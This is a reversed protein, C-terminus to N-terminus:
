AVFWAICIFHCASGALVMVHWLDHATFRGPWLHPRDLAFVVAGLSYVVGGAVLWILAATPLARFLPGAAIVVLWGMLVYLAVRIWGAPEKMLLVSAVGAAALAWEAALLGWGWPGWLPGLCLPTVTGAILLYIAAYDCQDLRWAAGASCRVAHTTTSAAYLLILCSGYVAFAVTLAPRGGALVLLVVLGVVSLLTGVLHSLAPWPDKIMRALTM